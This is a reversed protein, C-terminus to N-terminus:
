RGWRLLIRSGLVKAINAAIRRADNRTLPPSGSCYYNIARSWCFRIGLAM